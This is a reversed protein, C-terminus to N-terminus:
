LFLAHWGLSVTVAGNVRPVARRWRDTACSDVKRGRVESLCPWSQISCSPDLTRFPVLYTRRESRMNLYVIDDIAKPGNRKQCALKSSMM